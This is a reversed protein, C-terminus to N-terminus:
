QNRVEVETGDQLNNQGRFIVKEGASLGELIEVRSDTKIGLKVNKKVAKGDEVTFLYPNDENLDVISEVPVVVSFGAEGKVLRVDAFMGARLRNDENEIQVKVLFTRSSPDAAPAINTVTGKIYHQMTEAKVDVTDGKKLASAAAATVDIEAYLQDINILNVATQGSPIMEGEEINVTQVLGSFPARIQTKSIQDKVQDLNAEAQKVSAYAAALREKRPGREAENLNAEAVALNTEASKVQSSANELQQKMETPDNYSKETLQYNQEASKLSTEAQKVAIEANKLTSEATEYANEANELEKKSIVNDDYLTKSREYDRKAQNYNVEAQNLNQGATQLQQKANNLQQEANVLQQELSRREKFIQQMLKYNTEASELASKANKYSARVRALEEETAGNKLESYNAEASELAAELQRKQILLVEDDIEILKEDNKVSDGIEINVKEVVGGTEAPIDVEKIPALSGTVVEKLSIDDEVAETIEVVSASVASSLLLFILTFIIIKNKNM